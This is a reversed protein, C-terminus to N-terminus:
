SLFSLPSRTAEVDSAVSAIQLLSATGDTGIDIAGSITDSLHTQLVGTGRVELTDDALVTNQLVMLAASTIGPGASGDLIMTQGAVTTEPLTQPHTGQHGKAQPYLDVATYGDADMFAIDQGIYEIDSQVGVIDATEGAVPAVGGAWDSATLYRGIDAGLSGGVWTITAM